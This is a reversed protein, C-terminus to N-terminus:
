GVKNIKSVPTTKDKATTVVAFAVDLITKKGEKNADRYYELLRSEDKTLGTIATSEDQLVEAVDIEGDLWSKSVGFAESIVDLMDDGIRKKNPKNEDFLMRSVYSHSRKLKEALTSIKGDCYEDKLEILRQRRFEYKDM